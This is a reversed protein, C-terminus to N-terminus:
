LYSATRPSCCRLLYPASSTIPRRPSPQFRRPQRPFSRAGVPRQATFSVVPWRDRHLLFQSVCTLFHPPAKLESTSPCSGGASRQGPCADLQCISSTASQSLALVTRPPCVEVPGAPARAGASAPDAGSRLLRAAWARVGETHDGLTGPLMVAAHRCSPVSELPEIHLADYIRRMRPTTPTAAAASQPPAGNSAAGVRLTCTCSAHALVNSPPRSGGGPARGAVEGNRATAPRLLRRGPLPFQPREPAM